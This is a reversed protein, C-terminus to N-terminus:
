SLFHIYHSILYQSYVRVIDIPRVVIVVSVCMNVIVIKGMWPSILLRVSVAYYISCIHAYRCLMRLSSM